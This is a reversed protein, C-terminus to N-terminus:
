LVTTLESFGHIEIRSTKGPDIDPKSFSPFQVTLNINAAVTGLGSVSNEPDTLNNKSSSRMATSGV